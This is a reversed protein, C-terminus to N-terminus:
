RRMDLPAADADPPTIPGAAIAGKGSLWLALVLVSSATAWSGVVRVLILLWPQKLSSVLAVVNLLWVIAGVETGLLTAVLAGGSASEPASGLGVGIGLAGGVTAVVARPLALSAAVVLGALAAVSLVLVDTAFPWGLGAAALGAALAAAFAFLSGRNADPGRQGIVLGLTVLAILHAPEILPHITGGFFTGLGQASGHAAADGAAALLAAFAAAHRGRRRRSESSPAHGRHVARGVCALTTM